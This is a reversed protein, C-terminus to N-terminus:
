RLKPARHGYWGIYAFCVVPIIFAHQLGIADALAGQVLPILAGGVIATCLIGSGQSAHRGLGEIAITFITPFMISNFLGVGLILWMAVHGSLVMAGVVLLAGGTAHVLLIRSPAFKRLTVTGIFRGIMAGLWYLSVYNAAQAETFGAIHPEGFFNVLFSGISVEGGVYMFIALAGFVLRPYRWASKRESGGESATEDGGGPDIVPLKFIALVIALV